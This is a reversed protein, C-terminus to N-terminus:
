QQVAYEPSTSVLYLADLIRWRRQDALHDARSVTSNSVLDINIVNRALQARFDARTEPQLMTHHGLLRDAVLDLLKDIDDASKLEIDFNMYIKKKDRSEVAVASGVPRPFMQQIQDFFFNHMETHLNENALQMEPAVLGAQAIEGPPAYFPSFFNFVSPSELPSQGFASMPGGYEYGWMALGVEGSPTRGDYARWLQTLRLLPEKLKGVSPNEAPPRAEPDLLIAKVVARLNGRVGRGDNDFIQAVRRVYDPSPNSTVLKQILQKSIFPGVNPHNFVNDLADKLDKVGGQGAPIVGNPLAVGPYRLLQKTGSEHRDEFLKMPRTQNFDEIRPSDEPFYDNSSGGWACDNRPHWRSPCQWNWGTFVRAFGAITDQDYTPIPQGRADLKRSGDPNIQVLGISFLQMMERAYNEDPRLNTGEVAKQNGLASLYVGMAPHLTVDELLSRYNGFANRVLMDYYDATAWPRQFLAGTGSVVMIQSLAWAVRQRLQDEGYLVNKFWVEKREKHAFDPNFNDPRPKPVAAITAPLSLSMPKVFQEDIWREYANASYGYELLRRIDAETPGFTTQVLFRHADLRTIPSNPAASTLRKETFGWNIFHRTAAATDTGFAQRLDPNSALYAAASFAIRRGERYGAEIYHKTAAVVDTGFAQILDAFSAIYALADFTIRRGERYGYRIYHNIAALVDTKFADILDGHSAIYALGDFTTQRGEAYGFMIYNRTAAVTDFGVFLLLDGHSATYRLPDFAATVRRERYGHNIYHKTANEEQDAGFALILDPHSAVYILPDFTIRRGERAGWQEYHARGKAADAGFAEILDPQSAIYKLADSDSLTQLSDRTIRMACMGTLAANCAATFGVIAGDSAVKAQSSQPQWASFDNVLTPFIITHRSEFDIKLLVWETGNKIGTSGTFYFGDGTRVLDSPWYRQGTRPSIPWATTKASWADFSAGEGKFWVAGNGGTMVLDLRGATPILYLYHIWGIDNGVHRDSPQRATPILNDVRTFSGDGKGLLVIPTSTDGQAVYGNALLIDINGDRNLDAATASSGRIRLPVEVRRYTKGATSLFLVQNSTHIERFKPHTPLHEGNPLEIWPGLGECAVFVDPKRDNNFDATLAMAGGVCTDRDAASSFLETSHDIWAGQDNQVLFYAKSPSDSINKLGYVNRSRSVSVFAGMRGQQLFDGFTVIREESDGEDEDRKVTLAGIRPVQTKDFGISHRNEYSTAFLPYTVTVSVTKKAGAGEGTCELVFDVRGTEKVVRTTQGSLAQAGTWAGSAICATAHTSTWSLTVTTGAQVVPTAVSFDLEVPPLPTAVRGEQFGFVIYHRTAAFQDQGFAARLDSYRALYSVPDFTIRRGEKIGWTEYHSRGKQPDAGFAQILDPHSAIYRLADLDSLAAQPREISTTPSAVATLSGASGTALFLAVVLIEVVQQVLGKRRCM